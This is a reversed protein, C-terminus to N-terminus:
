LTYQRYYNQHQVLESNICLNDIFPKFFIPVLQQFTLVIQQFIWFRDMFIYSGIILFSFGDAPPAATFVVHCLYQAGIPHEYQWSETISNTCRPPTVDRSIRDVLLLGQENISKLPPFESTLPNELELRLSIPGARSCAMLQELEAFHNVYKLKHCFWLLSEHRLQESWSYLVTVKLLVSLQM